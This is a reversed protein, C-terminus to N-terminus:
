EPVVKMPELSGDPYQFLILEKLNMADRKRSQKTIRVSVVNKRYTEVVRYVQGTYGEYNLTDGSKCLKVKEDQM